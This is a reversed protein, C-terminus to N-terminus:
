VGVFDDKDGKWGKIKEAVKSGQTWTVWDEMSRTVLFAPDTVEDTGVRVHGQEIFRNAAQVTPSMHLRTMVVGLRRRCFRSTSLKSIASLSSDPLSSLSSPLLGISHLKAILTRTLALRPAHDPPLLSLLHALKRLSGCLRNYKAYDDPNSIAYRRCVAAARHGHDSKYTIFDVKRLLKQEHHKLKRVM